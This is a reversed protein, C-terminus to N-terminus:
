GCDVIKARVGHGHRDDGAPAYRRFTSPSYDNVRSTASPIGVLAMLDAARVMAKVRSTGFHEMLVEAIQFGVTFVPNLSTMPEQFIMSIERGRVALMQRRSYATLDRGELTVHGADIAGENGLLQMIALATVSKGSGSEGVLGVVDGHGIFFSVDEVVKLRGRLTAFSVTLGGIEVLPADTTAAETKDIVADSM